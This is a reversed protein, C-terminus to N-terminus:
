KHSNNAAKAILQDFYANIEKLSFRTSNRGLTIRKPFDPRYYRSKANSWNRISALCVGFKEAVDAIRILKDSNEMEKM